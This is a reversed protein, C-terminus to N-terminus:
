SSNLFEEPSQPKNRMLTAIGHSSPFAELIAVLGVTLPVALLAGAAGLMWTWAVVGVFTVLPSLNVESGMVVPQMITDQAFNILTYGVLIVIAAGAGSDLLALVAPPIVAIIVGVNPIFSAAFVLFSWLAPLPVGVIVLLIFTLVAAFVGLLARVVFFRRLDNGFRNVGALLAHNEGFAIVARERLSAGGVLAYVMTVVLVLIAVGAGSVASAVPRVLSAIQDPSIVSPLANPDAQIGFQALLKQLSAIEAALRDQYRPVRVVLEGVSLAIVGITVLLGVLIALLSVTVALGHRFGRRELVGVLPWTALGLFLGFLVPVVLSSVERLLLATVLVLVLTVLGLLPRPLLERDGARAEDSSATTDTVNSDM